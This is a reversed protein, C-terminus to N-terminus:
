RRIFRGSFSTFYAIKKALDKSKFSSIPAGDLKVTGHDAAMQGSLLNVLTSKGSGNHGLVVTLENTPTSLEDISLITREDRVMKINSLQFM